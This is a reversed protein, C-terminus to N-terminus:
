SRTRLAFHATVISAATTGLVDMARTLITWDQMQRSLVALALIGGICLWLTAAMVLDRHANPAPIPTVGNPPMATIPGTTGQEDAM